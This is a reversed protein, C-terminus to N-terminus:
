KYEFDFNKRFQIEQSKLLTISLLQFNSLKFLVLNVESSAVSSIDIHFVRKHNEAKLLRNIIFTPNPSVRNMPVRILKAEFEISFIQVYLTYQRKTM